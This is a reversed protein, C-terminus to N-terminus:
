GHCFRHDAGTRIILNTVHNRICDVYFIRSIYRNVINDQNIVVSHNGIAFFIYTCQCGTIVYRYVYCVCNDNGIQNITKYTVLCGCLTIIWITIRYFIFGIVRIGWSHRIIWCVYVKRFIRLERYRLNDGACPRITLHAVFDGILDDNGIRSIYGDTINYQCIVICLNRLSFLHDTDQHRPFVFHNRRGM